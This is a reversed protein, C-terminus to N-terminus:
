TWVSLPALNALLKWLEALPQADDVVVDGNAVAFGVPLYLPCDPYKVIADPMAQHFLRCGEPCVM